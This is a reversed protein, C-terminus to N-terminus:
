PLPGIELRDRALVPRGIAGVRQRGDPGRELHVFAQFAAVAQRGLAGPNLGALAGLAELRAPLDGLRNAHVTGASGDHGTNLAALLTSVEAGRCEGLAIRDPRMRLSERLLRDLSVAGSGEANPTRAELAVWNERRLRLEAVDEITVVRDGPPAEDLLAGLLTTKGSGTGGSILVNRRDSVLATLEDAIRGSCLGTEILRHLQPQAAAPLRISVAAGAVCIPPLVAHVRVGAGIAVDACPHLEDLQRNGASVLDVAIRRVREPSARWGPLAQLAGARDVWARGTRGTVQILLDRVGPLDLIPLLDGFARRAGPPLRTSLKPPDFDPRDPEPMRGTHDRVLASRVTEM